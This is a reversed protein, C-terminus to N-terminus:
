RCAMFPQLFAEVSEFLATIDYGGELSAVVRQQCHRRALELIQAGIWAFDATSLNLGALPDAQHADFGASVLILQPAHAEVAPCWRQQVAARFEASGAGAPLPADILHAIGHGSTWHPYLMSQYSNCVLVRPDTKFIDATGNGFHVDFDLIAVRDLGRELAHAAAVAINNFFCFGMAAASEAHHGPPRVACFALSARDELVLDVACIAAGAARQAAAATFANMVTDPDIRRLRGAALPALVTEVLEAAHVRELEARSALPADVRLLRAGFPSSAIHAELALLRRPSEPHYAGMDHRQCDAHSLWAVPKDSM